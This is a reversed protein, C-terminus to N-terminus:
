CWVRIVVQAKVCGEVPRRMGECLDTLGLGSPQAPLVGSGVLAGDCMSHRTYRAAVTLSRVDSVREHRSSIVGERDRSPDSSDTVQATACGQCAFCADHPPRRLCPCRSVAVNQLRIANCTVPTYTVTREPKPLHHEPYSQAVSARYPYGPIARTRRQNRM